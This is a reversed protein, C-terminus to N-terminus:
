TFIPLIFLISSIKKLRKLTFSTKEETFYALFKAKEELLIHMQEELQKEIKNDHQVQKLM